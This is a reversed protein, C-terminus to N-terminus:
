LECLWKLFHYTSTILLILIVLKQFHTGFHFPVRISEKHISFLFINKNNYNIRIFPREKHFPPLSNQQGSVIGEQLCVLLPVGFGSFELHSPSGCLIYM